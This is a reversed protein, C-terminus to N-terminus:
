GHGRRRRWGVFMLGVLLGTVMGPEPVAALIQLNVAAGFEDFNEVNTVMGPRGALSSGVVYQAFYDDVSGTAGVTLANIVDVGSALAADRADAVTQDRNKGTKLSHDDIGDGTVQIHQLTSEFGNDVGGTETGFLPVAFDLAGAISTKNKDFPRATGRLLDAFATAEATNSIEMWDLGLEQDKKDGYFVMAAAISGITGSELGLIVESSEFADAYGSMMLSFEEGTVSKTVDVLLLLETDVAVAESRPAGWLVLMGMSLGFVATRLRKLQATLM